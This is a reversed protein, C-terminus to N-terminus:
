SKGKQKVGLFAGSIDYVSCDMGIVRMRMLVIHIWRVGSSAVQCFFCRSPLIM